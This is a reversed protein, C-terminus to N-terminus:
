ICCRTWRHPGPFDRRRRAFAIVPLRQGRAAARLRLLAVSRQPPSPRPGRRCPSPQPPLALAARWACHARLGARSGRM